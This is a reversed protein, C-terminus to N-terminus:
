LRKQSKAVGDAIILKGSSIILCRLLFDRAQTQWIHGKPEDHKMKLIVTLLKQFDTVLSVKIEVSFNSETKFYGLWHKRYSLSSRSQGRSM